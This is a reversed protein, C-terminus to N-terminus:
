RRASGSRRPPRARASRPRPSRSVVVYKAKPRGTPWSTSRTSASRRWSAATRSSCTRDGIGMLAAIEPLPKATAGRAIELDTPGKWPCVSTRDSPELFRRDVTDPPFYHNGEVMVTADSAALVAGNWMARPM